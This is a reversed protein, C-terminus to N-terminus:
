STSQHTIRDNEIILISVEDSISEPFDLIALREGHEKIEGSVHYLRSLLKVQAKYYDARARIVPMPTHYGAESFQEKIFKNLSSFLSNFVEIEGNTTLYVRREEFLKITKEPPCDHNANVITPDVAGIGLAQSFGNHIHWFTPVNHSGHNEYGTLHIGGSGNPFMALEEKSLVPILDRLETELLQALESISNYNDRNRYLFHELWWDFLQGEKIDNYPAVTAWGWYSLGANIKPIEFNKKLGKFSRDRFTGTPEYCPITLANEVVMLIWLISLETLILTM